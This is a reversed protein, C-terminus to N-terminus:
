EPRSGEPADDDLLGPPPSVEIRGAALDVAPVVQRTFPILVSRGDAGKVDLLDGAGFDQVAMVRGLSAGDPGFVDLGILDAHYFEDEDADPLQDRDLYLKLGRIADAATRDPVEELRMVVGGKAAQVHSVTFHRGDESVLPGYDGLAEPDATYSRARVEGRLGRAPGIEAVLLRTKGAAM